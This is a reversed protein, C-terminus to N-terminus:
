GNQHCRRGGSGSLPRAAHQGPLDRPLHVVARATERNERRHDLRPALRGSVVPKVRSECVIWWVRPEGSPISGRTGNRLSGIRRLAPGAHSRNPRRAQPRLHTQMTPAVASGGM